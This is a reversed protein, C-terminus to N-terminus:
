FPIRVSFMSVQAGGGGGEHSLAGYVGGALAGAAAGMLTAAVKRAGDTESRTSEIGLWLLSGAVAGIGAAYVAREQRPGNGSLALGGGVFGVLGIGWVTLGESLTSVGGGRRGYAVLAGTAAALGTAGLVAACTVECPATLQASAPVPTAAALLALALSFSTPRGRRRGSRSQTPTM